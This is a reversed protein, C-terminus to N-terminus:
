TFINRERCTLVSCIAAFLGLWTRLSFVSEDSLSSEFDLLCGANVKGEGGAYLSWRENSTERM